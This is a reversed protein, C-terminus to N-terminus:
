ADKCPPICSISIPDAIRDVLEVPRSQRHLNAFANGAATTPQNSKWSSVQPENEEAPALLAASFGKPSSLKAGETVAADEEEAAAARKGRARAPIHLSAARAAGERAEGKEDGLV